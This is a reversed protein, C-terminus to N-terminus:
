RISINRRGDDFRAFSPVLNVMGPKIVRSSMDDTSIVGMNRLKSIAASLQMSFLHKGSAVIYDESHTPNQMHALVNQFTNRDLQHTFKDDVRRRDRKQNRSYATEADMQFWVLVPQAHNVKALQRLSNRQSTRISNTDYVVSLGASLFESAMYNMLQAVIDNEQKTYQPDNFLESRIRDAQLHTAHVNECFQRAFYSKGAGPYGYLMMLFPKNPYLKAM